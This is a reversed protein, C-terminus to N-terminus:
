RTDSAGDVPQYLSWRREGVKRVLGQAILVALERQITKESCDRIVASIDKISVSGEKRVLDLIQKTRSASSDHQPKTHSVRSVNHGKSIDKIIEKKPDETHASLFAHATQSGEVSPVTFDEAAFPSLRMGAAFREALLEYEQALIRANESRLAGSTEGLRVRSILAFVEALVASPEHEGAAAHVISEVLVLASDSLSELSAREPAGSRVVLVACVHAIREAKLYCFYWDARGKFLSTKLAFQHFNTNNDSM